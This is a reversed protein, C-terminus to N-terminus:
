PAAARASSVADLLRGSALAGAAIREVDAGLPRDDDLPPVLDRVVEHAAATAPALRDPRALDVAVAGVVLELAVLRQLAELMELLRFAGLASGTSDDEVGDAGAAARSISTPAALHRLEELLASGAKLLPGVGSRSPGLTTLSGPLDSLRETALARPRSEALAGVQVVGLAAADLALALAPTHFNGTSLVEGEATLVLPNDTAGNLEPDLAAGLLDLASALSGHVQSVCRFSLPDQVRRAGGPDTLLGGALLERIAAAAQKQGPAPRAAAVRPDLPTLNARFGEMSLAAAVNAAALLDRCRHLALAAAGASVSSASCIALGDRPGLTLPELGAAALAPAAPAREGVPDLVEGEGIMALGVHALLCLDSAGISGIRPIVPHVGANLMAALMQAVAPDAGSGGTALGNARVVMAARVVERALPPGVANARGRVTLLSFHALADGTLRHKVKHGLGTTLGYVPRGEELASLLVARAARMREAAAGPIGVPTAGDAVAAVHEATLSRGDLCLLETVGPVIFPAAEGPPRDAPRRATSSSSSGGSM